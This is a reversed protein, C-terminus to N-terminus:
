SREPDGINELLHIYSVINSSIFKICNKVFPFSFFVSLISERKMSSINVTFLCNLLNLRSQFYRSQWRIIMFPTLLNVGDKSQVINTRVLCSKFNYMINEALLRLSINRQRWIKSGLIINHPCTPVMSRSQCKPRKVIHKFFM